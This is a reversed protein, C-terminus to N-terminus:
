LARVALLRGRLVTEVHSEIARRVFGEPTMGQEPPVSAGLFSRYGTDSFFPAAKDKARDSFGAYPMATAGIGFMGSIEILATTSAAEIEFAGAQGWIPVAGAPAATERELVCGPADPGAIIGPKGSNLKKALAHAEKRIAIAANFDTALMAAHHREIQARHFIIAEKMTEPLHATEKAFAHATNEAAAAQMLCDFGMQEPQKSM